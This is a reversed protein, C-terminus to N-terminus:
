SPSCIRRIKSVSLSAKRFPKGAYALRSIKRARGLFDDLREIKMSAEPLHRQPSRLSLRKAIAKVRRNIM